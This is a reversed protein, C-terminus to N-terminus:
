FNDIQLNGMKITTFQYIIQNRRQKNIDGLTLSDTTICCFDTRRTRATYHYYIKREHCLSWKQKWLEREANASEKSSASLRRLMQIQAIKQERSYPHLSMQRVARQAAMSNERHFDNIYLGEASLSNQMLISNICVTPRVARPSSAAFPHGSTKTTWLGKTNIIQLEAVFILMKKWNNEKKVSLYVSLPRLLKMKDFEAYRQEWWDYWM